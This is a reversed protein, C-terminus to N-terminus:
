SYFDLCNKEGEDSSQNHPHDSDSEFMPSRQLLPKTRGQGSAALPLDTSRSTRGPLPGETFNLMTAEAPTPMREAWSLSQFLAEKIRQNEKSTAEWVTELEGEMERKQQLVQDLAEQKDRLLQQLHRIEGRYSSARGAFDEEQEQLRHGMVGLSTAAQRKYVKVKEQLKGLRMTGKIVRTLVGQKDQELISAMHVLQDREHKTKEAAAVISTLYQHATMERDMSDEVQVKLLCIKKQSKRNAQHLAELETEMNKMEALLSSKELLLSTKEEQVSAMRSTLQELESSRKEEEQELQRHLKGVLAAHEEQSVASELTSLNQRHQTQLLQLESRTKELEEQLCQKEAELLMVEKTVKSVEQQHRNHSEKAKIQQVELQQMLLQNEKLVLKAQDQLQRWKKQCTGGAKSLQQHLSDNEQVVEEVRERFRRTEEVHSQLISDKENLQDEYALLLPSLYKMDLLWPPSPGKKPLASIRPSEEKSLPQFKAQYRSLEANLRHVTMKLGDNEDVLEQNQERLTRLQVQEGATSGQDRVALLWAQNQELQKELNRQRRHAQQLLQGQEECRQALGQNQERLARVLQMQAELLEKHAEDAEPQSDRAAMRQSPGTRLPPGSNGRPSESSLDPSQRTKEIVPEVPSSAKKFTQEQAATKDRAHVASVEEAVSSDTVGGTESQCAAQKHPVAYIDNTVLAAGQRELSQYIHDEDPDSLLGGKVGEEDEDDSDDDDEDCPDSHEPSPLRPRGAVSRHWRDRSYEATSTYPEVEVRSASRSCDSVSLSRQRAPPIAVTRGTLSSSLIAAALASRPREPSPYPSRPPPTRPVAPRPAVTAAPILGHAIHKFAMKDKRRFSFKSM